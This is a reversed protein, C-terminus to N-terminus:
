LTARFNTVLNTSSEGKPDNKSFQVLQQIKKAVKEM